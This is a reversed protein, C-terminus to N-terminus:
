RHNVHVARFTKSMHSTNLTILYVGNPYPSLNIIKQGKQTNPFSYTKLTHGLADFIMIQVDNPENLKYDLKYQNNWTSFKIVDAENLKVETLAHTIYYMPLIVVQKSSTDECYVSSGSLLNIYYVGTTDFVHIPDSDTSTAGDGFNWIYYTANQSSNTFQIAVNTDTYLTDPCSFASVPFSSPQIMFSKSYNDCTGVTNIQVTYLGPLMNNLTDATTKNLSTKIVADNADRWVYNWPGANTPQCIIQGSNPNSCTPLSISSTTPLSDMNIQLSFRATNTTDHLTFSYSNTRLNTTIGTFKDYLYICSGLPFSGINNATITFQGTTDTNTKVDMSFNQSIPAVANIQFISTSYTLAIWPIANDNILKYADYAADFQNTAGAQCYLVTEDNYGMGSMQLRLLPTISLTEPTNGKRLFIPNGDVKNSELASLSTAGTSHVYFGQATPITDSIGGSSVAPSSINNVYSAFGGSGSNLDANYVYIANDIDATAGKLLSWRIPSPYPNAILNWGDDNSSGTNTYTLPISTNLQGVTGTVDVTIDTTTTQGTGTYVWYGKSQIIPDTIGNLAVYSSADDQPGTQTEDYTLISNFGGAVGDPCTPCSIFLDDDWDSYTLASTIPAGLLVWGTAGGPIFREVIVNGTINGTGTIQGIRANGSANSILTFNQSNTNFTGNSISLTGTLNQASTLSAGANNNLSLNNFNTVTSGGITQPTSGNLLVTGSQPTFTGSNSYNEKISVQYNSSSVDFVAPSNITLSGNLTVASNLTKTGAGSLTLNYFTEGGSKLISQSSASSLTVTGTGPTFTGGNNDWNGGLTINLNNADLTGSTITLHNFISLSNTLLKATANASSLTLNGISSSSNISMIQAAPTSGDGIQLTGGTVSGSSGTNVFGLDQAGTGGERQIVLTGASMDFQSGSGDIHFPAITTSTSGFTPITLTGGSISFDALTNIDASYYKGAINVTGTSLSFVGGYSALDENAANGINLTGDSVQIAGYLNIGADTNVTASSSNLWLKGKLPLTYVVSFPTITVTNTTSLKFTGNTLTLFGNAATFNSTTVDFINSQSTGMNLTLLNFTNTAGTGSLTQNGNNSLTVNCLSNADTAFNLTGNNTINGKFTATHTVNSGTNVNFTGNTAITLDSNVTISRITAGSFELKSAAGGQGITLQNCVAAVDINVTHGNGITVNDGAGPVGSPVWTGATNWASSGTSTKNTGATTAQTGTLATGLNGETVAYVKWYYTTSPLLGTVVASTANIATQSVFSFNVNDTSNYVVYGIENSAWNTFNLTMGTSTVATFTLTGSPSTPIPPTFTYKTNATPMATLGNQITNSFTNSNVTQLTKLQALTPTASLTVGNMGVTYTFSATGANMTGYLIEVVGTTEYLKVQYNLSPTTNGYVCMAIWESTLVRNPATGSVLYKIATGLASTGGPAMQDDYFPAIAPNTSNAVTSTTFSANNYGFDDATPGGDDTSSSFDLYGNTSVCFRTYRVGNYWFDFGIDTFDSRNDDQPLSATNRWSAFASGTATISTYSIGTTRVPTYNAFTQSFIRQSFFFLFICLFYKM